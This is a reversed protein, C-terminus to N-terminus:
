NKSVRFSLLFKDVEPSNSKSFSTFVQISYFRDRYILFIGKVLAQGKNYSIRYMKQPVYINSIDAYYLLEGDLKEIIGELSTQFFDELLETSDADLSENPYDTYNVIYIIEPNEETGKHLYTQTKLEGLDTLTHKIGWEMNGPSLIKFSKDEPHFLTWEAQGILTVPLFSLLLMLYKM